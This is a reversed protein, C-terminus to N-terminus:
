MLIEKGNFSKRFLFDLSGNVNNYDFESLLSSDLFQLVEDVNVNM